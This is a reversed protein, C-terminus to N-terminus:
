PEVEKRFHPALLTRLAQRARHCRIKVANPSIGLVAAVEATDMDEVDRLILAVRYQDPLEAICRRVLARNHAIEMAVDVPPSWSVFGEVHHGDERYAPLLDEISREPKRKRSRVKMLAANVAIRHLWTSLRADGEFRAISRFASLFTDQLADRAEEDNGLIRRTVALLRGSYLRVAEEYADGDGAKLRAILARDDAADGGVAPVALESPLPM